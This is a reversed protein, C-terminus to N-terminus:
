RNPPGGLSRCPVTVHDFSNRGDGHRGQNSSPEGNKGTKRRFHFRAHRMNKGLAVPEVDMGGAGITRLLGPGVEFKGAQPNGTGVRGGGNPLGAQDGGVARRLSCFLCGTQAM